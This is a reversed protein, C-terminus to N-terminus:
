FREGFYVSTAAIWASPILPKRKRRNKVREKVFGLARTRRLTNRLMDMSM